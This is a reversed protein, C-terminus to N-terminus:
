PRMSSYMMVRVPISYMAISYVPYGYEKSSGYHVTNMGKLGHLSLILLRVTTLSYHMCWISLALLTSTCKTFVTPM